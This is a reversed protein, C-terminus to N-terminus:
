WSVGVEDCGNNNQNIVGLNQITATSDLNRLPVGGWGGAWGMLMITGRDIFLNSITHGNGNYTGIFKNELSGIPMWGTDDNWTDIDPEAENFDIDATQIYKASLRNILTPDTVDECAIWYLNEVCSIKYPNDASGDGEEPALAIQGFALNSIILITCM